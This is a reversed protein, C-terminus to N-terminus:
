RISFPRGHAAPIPIRPFLCAHHVFRQQLNRLSFKRWTQPVSLARGARTEMPALPCLIRPANPSLERRIRLLSRTIKEFTAGLTHDAAILAAPVLTVPVHAEEDFCSEPERDDHQQQRGFGRLLSLGRLHRAPMRTAGGTYSTLQSPILVSIM